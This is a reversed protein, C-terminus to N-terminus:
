LSFIICLALIIASLEATFVSAAGPLSAGRCSSPFVVGYGVGLDSKSGDTYSSNLWQTFLFTGFFCLM